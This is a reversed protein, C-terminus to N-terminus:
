LRKLLLTGEVRNTNDRLHFVLLYSVLVVRNVDPLVPSDSNGNLRWIRIRCFIYGIFLLFLLLNLHILEIEKREATLFAVQVYLGAHQPHNFGGFQHFDAFTWQLCRRPTFSIRPWSPTMWLTNTTCRFKRILLLMEYKDLPPTFLPFIVLFHDFTDWGQALM